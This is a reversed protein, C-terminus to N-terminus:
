AGGKTMHTDPSFASQMLSLVYRVSGHRFGQGQFWIRQPPYCSPEVEQRAVPHDGLYAEAVSFEIHSEPHRLEFPHVSFVKSGRSWKPQIRRYRRKWVTVQVPHPQLRAYRLATAELSTDFLTALHQMAPISPLEQAAASLFLGEPMLMEAAAIDCLAEEARYEPRNRSRAVSVAGGRFSKVKPNFFTHAIEHAISFNRRQSNMYPSVSIVFGTPTPTLQADSSGIPEDRVDIVGQLPALLREADIPPQTIKAHQVLERAARVVADVQQPSLLRRTPM